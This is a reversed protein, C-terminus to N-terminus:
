NGASREARRAAQEALTLAVQDRLYAPEIREPPLAQGAAFAAAGLRALHGARPLADPRCSALRDQLRQALLGDAAAFGTGVAHWDVGALQVQEPALVQEAALPQPLGDRIRFGAVYVEGMRADIAALVKDGEAADAGLALVALTSIGAMPRQLALAIGQALSLGLRVGTFAGPGRSALVGDLAHRAIGAEQLLAEAWPLVLAAHRRPAVEHRELLREGDLVAVSCAETATEIALLRM